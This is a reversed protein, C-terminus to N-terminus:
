QMSFVTQELLNKQNACSRIASNELCKEFVVSLVFFFDIFHKKCLLHENLFTIKKITTKWSHKFIRLFCDAAEIIFEPSLCTRM